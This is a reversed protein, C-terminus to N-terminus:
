RGRYEYVKYPIARRIPITKEITVATLNGTKEDIATVKGFVREVGNLGTGPVRKGQLTQDCTYISQEGPFSEIVRRAEYKQGVLMIRDIKERVVQDDEVLLDDEPKREDNLYSYSWQDRTKGAIGESKVTKEPYISDEDPNLQYVTDFPIVRHDDYVTRIEYAAEPPDSKETRYLYFGKHVYDQLENIPVWFVNFGTDIVHDDVLAWAHRGEYEVDYTADIGARKLLAVVTFARTYCNGRRYMLGAEAGEFFNSSAPSSYTIQAKTFAYVAEIIEMESMDEDILQSLISDAIRDLKEDGTTGKPAYPASETNKGTVSEHKTSASVKSPLTLANLMTCPLMITQLILLTLVFCKLTVHRKATSKM